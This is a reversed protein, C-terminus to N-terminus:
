GGQVVHRLDEPTQWSQLRLVMNEVQSLYMSNVHATVMPVTLVTAQLQQRADDKDTECFGGGGGGKKFLSMHRQM